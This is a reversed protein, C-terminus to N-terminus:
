ASNSVGSFTTDCSSNARKRRRREELMLYTITQYKIRVIKNHTYIV